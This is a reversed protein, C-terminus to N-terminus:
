ISTKMKITVTANISHLKHSYSNTYNFTFIIMQIDVNM